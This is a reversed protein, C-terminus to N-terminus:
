RIRVENRAYHELNCVVLFYDMRTQYYYSRKHAILNLVYKESKVPKQIKHRLWCLEKAQLM